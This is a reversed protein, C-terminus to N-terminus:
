ENWVLAVVMSCWWKFSVVIQKEEKGGGGVGKRVVLVLGLFNLQRKKDKFAM